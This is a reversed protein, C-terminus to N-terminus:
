QKITANAYAEATAYLEKAESLMKQSQADIEEIAAQKINILEEM